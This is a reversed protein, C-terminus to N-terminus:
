AYEKEFGIGNDRVNIEVLRGALERGDISIHPPVDKKRFKLANAILNQFLRHMQANDAVIVPLKAVKIVGHSEKIRMELDSIVEGVVVSLDVSMFTTEQSESKSFHLVAEILESMRRATSQLRVLYSRGQEDFMGGYRVELMDSFAIVKQLPEKLDHSAIVAFLELQKREATARALDFTKNLLESQAHKLATIDRAICVFAIVQHQEDRIVSSSVSLVLEGGQPQAYNIEYNPVVGTRELEDRIEKSLFEKSILEIGKGAIERHPYGFIISAVENAVRVTGEHDLVLVADAMTNIIREAAFAPTIEHLRYRWIIRAILVVFVFILVYGFPYLEIGFSALYDIGGAYGIAFAVILAKLRNKRTGPHSRRYEDWFLGLSIMLIGVFVFLFAIGLIGYQEHFGWYCKRVGIIFLDTQVCLFYFLASLLFSLLAFVRYQRFRNVIILAFLFTLSPLFIIGLHEIKIWVRAVSESIVSNCVSDSFLWFSIGLTIAFFSWSASTGQERFLVVVGLGVSLVAVLFSPITFPHFVYNSVDLLQSITAM